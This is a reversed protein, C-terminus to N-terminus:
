LVELRNELRTVGPVKMAVAQALQKHYYRPVCGLLLVCGDRVAIRVSRLFEHKSEQLTLGIADALLNDKPPLNTPVDQLM